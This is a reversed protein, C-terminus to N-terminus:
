LLMFKEIRKSNKLCERSGKTSKRAFLNEDKDDRWEIFTM